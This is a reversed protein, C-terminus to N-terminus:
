VLRVIGRENFVMRRQSRGKVCHMSGLAYMRCERQELVDMPQRHGEAEKWCMGLGKACGEMVIWKCTICQVSM